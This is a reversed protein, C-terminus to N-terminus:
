CFLAVHKMARRQPVVVVSGGVGVSSFRVSSFQIHRQPQVIIPVCVCVSVCSGVRGAAVVFIAVFVIGVTEM